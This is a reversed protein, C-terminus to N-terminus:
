LVNAVVKMTEVPIGYLVNSSAANIKVKVRSGLLANSAGKKIIVKKYNDARANLSRDEDETIIVDFERGIFADNNTQQVQRVVRTFRASRGEIIMNPLQELRSAAAHPRSWFKCRNVVEPKTRRVFELTQEFDEENETPYGVIVDTEITIQPIEARLKAVYADFQEITYMRNMERLVRNSGSQVPLHVFKYFRDSKLAEVFGDLYKGLHEPNLMGVRVKFDGEIESLRKMLKAINTGRDLGYAGMDQSTLQIEKAGNNVSLEVAKFILEESFSNLPGRAFKTECFACSSACGDNIQVKSIVNKTPAFFILRDTKHYSNITRKQGLFTSEIVGPIKAINNTTVISANPAYKEILDRNAGAMCGTVIIKKKAKELTELRYLIKQETPKKVTCTNVIVIDAEGESTTSINNCKLINAIIDSDAQNLTCGYTEIYVSNRM